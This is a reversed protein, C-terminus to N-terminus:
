SWLFIPTWSFLEMLPFNAVAHVILIRQHESSWDFEMYFSVQIVCVNFSVPIKKHLTHGVEDDNTLKESHRTTWVFQFRVLEGKENNGLFNHFGPFGSSSDLIWSWEYDYLPSVTTSIGTCCIGWKISQPSPIDSIESQRSFGFIRIGWLYIHCISGMWFKWCIRVNTKCELKDPLSMM